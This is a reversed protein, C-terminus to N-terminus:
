RGGEAQPFAQETNRDWVDRRKVRVVPALPGTDRVLLWRVARGGSHTPALKAMRRVYGARELAVVYAGIRKEATTESRRALEVLDGITAKQRIRLAAWARDGLTLGPRKCTPLATPRPASASLSRGSARWADGDETLAFCGVAKRDVLGRSVLQVTASSVDHTTVDLAAAIEVVTLCTGPELLGLVLDKIPRKDTM